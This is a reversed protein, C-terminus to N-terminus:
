DFTRVRCLQLPQSGDGIWGAFATCRDAELALGYRALLPGSASQESRNLADIDLADDSRLALECLPLSATPGGNRQLRRVMKTSRNVNAVVWELLACGREARTVGLKTLLAQQSAVHELRRDAHGRLLAFADGGRAALLGRVRDRYAPGTPFPALHAFAARDPFQTAIWAVPFAETAILVTARDPERLAPVDARYPPHSWGNHGWTEYESVLFVATAAGVATLTLHRASAYPALAAFLLLVALPLVLELAVLYRHVGFVYLWVVYAAAAFALVWRAQPELKRLPRWRAAVAVIWIAFVAYALPWIAPRVHIEGIRFPDLVFVFPWLLAELWGNPGWRVDLISGAAALPNPFLNTFQPFLPNGFRKAMEVLWYGGTLALGAIVGAGFGTALAIRRPWNGPVAAFAVCLAVAYVGNTLKLGMAIGALLGAGCAIAGARRPSGSLSSWNKLVLLLAALVALATTNDGMTNGLQCVFAPTLCGAAAIALPVRHRDADPLRPLASRAVEAVLVFALGHLAGMAFGVLPAYVHRSVLYYPVDILPNFYSQLGAPAIDVDLRGHLLAFPNYLHYNLLDWNADVGRALSWLGFLAPAIWRSAAFARAGTPDRSRVSALLSRVSL